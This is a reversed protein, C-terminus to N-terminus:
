FYYRVGLQAQGQLLLNTGIPEILGFNAPVTYLIQGSAADYSQPAVLNRNASFVGMYRGWESNLLNFVNFLDLQIEVRQGRVTPVSKSFRLDLRTFAPYRCTNRPIIQGVYDSVCKNSDLFGQYRARQAAAETPDTTALPLDAAAFVFPRDNFRIGDGNLDGSQEPTWANGTQFRLFGGIAIDWPLRTALELVGTHNRTYDSPGWGRAADGAKGIDNPGWAGVNPDTYGETATCCSYSSNDYSNVWTYSARLTTTAWLRQTLQLTFAVSRAQGDNYNVFVDGFELNRRHDTSTGAPNFTAEPQFMLRDGESALTFQPDRLNLNRVTYLKTSQSFVLDGSLRTRTGIMQEYGLNAKFTEPYEFDNTWFTYTPVGGVGGAGACASPNDNGNTAWTGYPSVDPPADPDGDVISGSCTLNLVPNASGQVNGGLVYPVRGFFYGAGTRLVSRGDGRLDYALMLRPSLNNNDVPAVGTEIGFAQEADIVRAPDDLYSQVDWRLGATATLRPTVQWEDQAYLSWEAVGFDSYPINGDSGVNRVFSSPSFADFATLSGFRYEGAGSLIFQNKVNTFVANGGLKLTHRGLVHTLNDILQIKREALDNQFSAFTGGYGAQQGTGLSVVLAPRLENGNRPRQEDAFLFRFV